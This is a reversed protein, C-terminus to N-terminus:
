TGGPRSWSRRVSLPWCGTASKTCCPPSADTLAIRVADPWREAIARLLRGGNMGPMRADSVVLDVRHRQFESLAEAGSGAFSMAWKHAMDQLRTRLEELVAPEDDVFLIRKVGV